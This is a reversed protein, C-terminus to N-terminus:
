LLGTWTEVMGIKTYDHGNSAEMIDYYAWYTPVLDTYNKLLALHSDVYAQDCYRELVRNVVTIIEARTIFNDPRFTGDPYGQLWGRAVAYNIVDYYPHTSPVDSFFNPPGSTLNEFSCALEAFEARTIPEDPRFLTITKPVPILITAGRNRRVALDQCQTTGPISSLEMAEM